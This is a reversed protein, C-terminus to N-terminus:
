NAASKGSGSLALARSQASDAAASRGQARYIQALDLWAQPVDPAIQIAKEQAAAARKTDGSQQWAKARGSAVKYSISDDGRQTNEAVTATREAESFAELADDPHGAQLAYDGLQAYTSAPSAQLEAAKKIAAIADSSRGQKVYLDALALWTFENPSLAVARLFEQEAESGRDMASLANGRMLHANVSAPFVSLAEESADLAAANRGLVMYVTAANLAGIFREPSNTQDAIDLTETACNIQLRQILSATEPTRRVFVASVGDLYVPAWAKSDCLDKVRAHEIGNSRSLLITNIHYRDAEQQWDASGPDSQLLLRERNVRPLGFLTDRGDLYDLRGPGLAWSVYGGEDYTNFLEGPLNEREIFEAAGRPFWWSLGAGFTSIQPTSGFYYRNSILDRGRIWVLMALCAAAGWALAHRIRPSRVWSTAPRLAQALVPGGVVVVVCAFVAGMRIHKVPPYCALALLIAAGLQKQLLAVVAAVVAIALLLYLAERTGGSTFAASAAPWNLRIGRWEIIWLEQNANAREQLMLSRYLNWGWPNLLTAAFTFALWPYVRRLREIAAARRNPGCVFELVEAGAYAFVLLLGAAFGFHVNVWVAMLAPLLWLPADGSRHNQWLLSLFAAFLVVTFMDARPPTRDAILPVALVALAAGVASNRRLLLVVTGVCAAASIWSLLKFGGILFALYFFVGAGVPYIWREGAATYSLVDVSPIHHHQVAWRGTAMHWFIDFDSVTRLGALFAYILALCGVLVFLRREFELPNPAASNTSSPVVADLLIAV